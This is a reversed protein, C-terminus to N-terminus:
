GAPLWGAAAPASGTGAIATGPGGEAPEGAGALSRGASARSRDPDVRHLGARGEVRGRGRMFTGPAAVFEIWARDPEIQRRLLEERLEDLCAPLEDATVGEEGARLCAPEGTGLLWARVSYRNAECLRPSVQVLLYCPPLAPDSEIPKEVRAPDVDILDLGLRIRAEGIWAQLGEPTEDGLLDVLLEIFRLLPFVGDGCKTAASAGPKPRLELAVRDSKTGAAAAGLRDPRLDSLAADAREAPGDVEDVWPARAATTGGRGGGPKRPLQESRPPTAEQELLWDRHDQLAGRVLSRFERAQDCAGGLM